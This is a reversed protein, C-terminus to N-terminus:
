AKLCSRGPADRHLLRYLYWGQRMTWRVPGRWDVSPDLPAEGIEALAHGPRAERLYRRVWPAVVGYHLYRGLYPRVRGPTARLEFTAEYAELYLRQCEAVSLVADGEAPDIEWISLHIRERDM